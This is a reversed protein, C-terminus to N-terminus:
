TEARLYRSLKKRIAEESLEESYHFEVLTYGAQKCLVRKKRDNEQRKKLGDEGGWHDIVQYHQEGQYEIGLRIEPIWVDLELGQLEIGRYHHIVEMPSFMMNVVKFLITESIWKEGIKPYGFSERVENEIENYEEGEYVDHGLKKRSFLKHYPLYRQLFSSYYMDSGYLHSPVRGTCLSCIGNLTQINGIQVRLVQESNGYPLLRVIDDKVAYHGDFCTCTFLQGCRRCISLFPYSISSIRIEDLDHRCSGDNKVFNNLLENDFHIGLLCFYSKKKKRSIQHTYGVARIGKEFVVDIEYDGNEVLALINGLSFDKVKVFPLLSPLECYARDIYNIATLSYDQHGYRACFEMDLEQKIDNHWGTFKILSSGSVSRSDRLYNKYGLTAEPFTGIGKANFVGELQKKFASRVDHFFNGRKMPSQALAIRFADAVISTPIEVTRTTVMFGATLLRVFESLPAAGFQSREYKEQVAM